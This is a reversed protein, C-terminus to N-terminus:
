PFGEMKINWDFTFKINYEDDKLGWVNDDEKEKMM